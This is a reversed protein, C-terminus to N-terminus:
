FLYSVASSCLVVFFDLQNLILFVCSGQSCLSPSVPSQGVGADCVGWGGAPGRGVKSSSGGKPWAWRLGSNVDQGIGSPSGGLGRGESNRSAGM